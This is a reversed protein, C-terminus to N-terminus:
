HNWSNYITSHVSKVNISYNMIRFLIVCQVNENVFGNTNPGNEKIFKEQQVMDRTLSVATTDRAALVALLPSSTCVSFHWCALKYM